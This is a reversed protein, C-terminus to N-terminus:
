DYKYKSFKVFMGQAEIGNKMVEHFHDKNIPIIYYFSNHSGYDIATVTDEGGITRIYPPEFDNLEWWDKISNFADDQTRFIGHNKHGTNDKYQLLYMVRLKEEM